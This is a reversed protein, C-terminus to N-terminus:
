GDNDKALATLADGTMEKVLRTDSVPTSGIHDYLEIAQRNWDNAEWQMAVCDKEVAIRAMHRVLALGIGIGRYPKEVYLNAIWL